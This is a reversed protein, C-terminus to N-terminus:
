EGKKVVLYRMISDSIKFNRELEKPLSSEGSFTMLVYYGENQDNIPYALRRKGWKDIDSISGGNSTVVESFKDVVAKTPEEELLPNIIYLAEYQNM